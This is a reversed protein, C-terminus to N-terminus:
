ILFVTKRVDTHHIQSVAMEPQILKLQILFNQLINPFLFFLVPISDAKIWRIGDRNQTTHPPSKRAM